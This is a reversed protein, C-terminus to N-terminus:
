NGNYKWLAGPTFYSIWLASDKPLRQSVNAVTVAVALCFRAKTFFDGLWAKKWTMTKGHFRQQFGM